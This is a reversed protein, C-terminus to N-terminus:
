SKKNRSRYGVFGLMLSALGFMAYTSPEPVINGPGAPPSSPGSSQADHSFPANIGADIDGNNRLVTDYLDFHIEYGDALGSTNVAFEKYFMGNGSTDFAAAGAGPQTDYEAVTDSANFQFELETFYTPFVSHTSLDQADFGQNALATEVPPTGYLMDSTVNYTTSGISFSGYDASTNAVDSGDTKLLAASLYFNSNIIDSDSLNGQPNAYALLTFADGDSFVTETANDYSGNRIDLQLQPVAQAPLVALASAGLISYILKNM